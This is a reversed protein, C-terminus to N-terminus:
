KGINSAEMKIPTHNEIPQETGALSQAFWIKNKSDKIIDLEFNEPNIKNEKCFELPINFFLTDDKIKLIAKISEPIQYPKIHGIVKM